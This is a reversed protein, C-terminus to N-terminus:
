AHGRRDEVEVDVVLDGRGRRADATGLRPADRDDQRVARADGGRADVEPQQGAIRQGVLLAQRDDGASAAVRARAADAPSGTNARDPLVLVRSPPPPESAAAAPAAAAPAPVIAGVGSGATRRHRAPRGPLRPPQRGRRQRPPVTAPRSRCPRPSGCGRVPSRRPRCRRSSPRRRRGPPPRPLRPSREPWARGSTSGLGPWPRRLARHRTRPPRHRTRPEGPVRRPARTRCRAM